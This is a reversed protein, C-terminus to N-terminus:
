KSGSQKEQELKAYFLKEYNDLHAIYGKPDIFPNPGGQVLKAYKAQMGYHNTHSGMFVDCPLERLLKFARIYDETIQPYDPNGILYHNGPKVGMGCVIVVHYPKGDEMVTTTWTTCGKTHGATLHAVLITDGLKVEDGDHLVRDVPQPLTSGRMKQLAPVDQEMAMVQAGTLEKVLADGQMHDVHAHSGLLIKTDSYKFGLKEISERVMPVTAQYGSNILINGERTVILFSAHEEAGVFYINSIIKHPPFPKDPGSSEGQAAATQAVLGAAGLLAVAMLRPLTDTRM